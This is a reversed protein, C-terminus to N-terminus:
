NTGSLRAENPKRFSSLRPAQDSGRGFMALMLIVFQGLMITKNSISEFSNIVILFFAFPITAGPRMRWGL